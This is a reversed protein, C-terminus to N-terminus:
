GFIRADDGLIKGDLRRAEANGNKRRETKLAEFAATDRDILLKWLRKYCLSM